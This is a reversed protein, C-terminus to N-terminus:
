GIAYGAACADTYFMNVTERSLEDLDMARMRLKDLVPKTATIIHCGCEDAQYVNLVERPSAWLLQAHPNRRVIEAARKMTPVPDRGTDAIRGAFVSVIAPVTPSLVAVVSEVHRLTMLATVNVKVRAAVLRQVLPIASEGQTNTIPIKVFVNPGWSSIILAQREMEPFDDAFVEFSIPLDRIVALVSKAFSEYDSIGAKRMLTPNTTFGHVMGGNYAEVMEKLDAGDAYVAIKLGHYAAPAKGPRERTLEGVAIPQMDSISSQAQSDSPPCQV